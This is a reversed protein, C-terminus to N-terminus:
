AIELSARCQFNEPLSGPFVDYVFKITESVQTLKETMTQLELEHKEKMEGLKEQWEHETELRTTEVKIATEALFSATLENLDDQHSTELQSKVAGMVEHHRDDLDLFFYLSRFSNSCLHRQMVLSLM